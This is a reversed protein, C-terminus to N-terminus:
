RKKNFPSDKKRYGAPIDFASAPISGTKIGRQYRINSDRRRVLTRPRPSLLTQIGPNLLPIM